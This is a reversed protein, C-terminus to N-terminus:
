RSDRAVSEALHNHLAKLMSATKRAMAIRATWVLRNHADAFSDRGQLRAINGSIQKLGRSRPMKRFDGGTEQISLNAKFYEAPSKRMQEITEVIQAYDRRANEVGAKDKATVAEEKDLTQLFLEAYVLEEVAKADEMAKLITNALAEKKNKTKRGKASQLMDAEASNSEATLATLKSVLRSDLSRNM